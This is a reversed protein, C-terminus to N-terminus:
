SYYWYSQVPYYLMQYQKYGEVSLENLEERTVIQDEEMKRLLNMM